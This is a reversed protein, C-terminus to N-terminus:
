TNTKSEGGHWAKMRSSHNSHPEYTKTQVSAAAAAASAAALNLGSAKTRASLAIARASPPRASPPLDAVSDEDYVITLEAELEAAVEDMARRWLSPDFEAVVRACERALETLTSNWHGLMNAASPPATANPPLRDTRPTGDDDDEEGEGRGDTDSALSSVVPLESNIYIARAIIPVLEERWDSGLAQPGVGAFFVFRSLISGNLLYLAKESVQFHTSHVCACIRALVASLVEPHISCPDNEPDAGRAQEPTIAPIRDLIEEIENLFLVEKKSNSRPWLKLLGVLIRDALRPEKSLFQVIAYSLQPHFLPLHHVKHLPILVRCLLTDIHSAKLPVAFGNIISGFLELIESVGHQREDEYIVKLLLNQMNRRLFPRLAMSAGYTRHLITKVYDRERADESGINHLLALLFRRSLFTSLMLKYSTQMASLSTPPEPHPCQSTGGPPNSEAHAEVLAASPTASVLRLLLEYSLQLIPWCAEEQQADEEPCFMHNQGGQIGVGPGPLREFSSQPLPRFLNWGLMDFCAGYEVSSWVPRQQSVFNILELLTLRKAERAKLEAEISRPDLQPSPAVGPFQVSCLRFKKLLLARRSLGAPTDPLSPLGHIIADM